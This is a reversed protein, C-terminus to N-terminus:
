MILIVNFRTAARVSSSSKKKAKAAQAATIYGYECMKDAIEKQRLLAESRGATSGLESPAKVLGALFAAQALDLTAASKDFYRAAARDIGYANNGFYVQNLYMQLIREKSYHSEIEYALYAEKLKRDLGAMSATRLNRQNESFFLNKVLQQTITSGGEVVKHALMNAIVARGISPINVGHHEYFHHDEAALMAQQMQTSIQTLPVVRRDEDGEVTTILRDTKDFIQIAEIPEFREVLTVDPLDKFHKWVMAGFFGIGIAGAVCILLFITRFARKVGGGRKKKSRRTAM